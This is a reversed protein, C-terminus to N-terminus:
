PDEKLYYPSPLTRPASARVKCGKPLKKKLGDTMADTVLKCNWFEVWKLKKFRTLVTLNDLKPCEAFYLGELQPLNRLFSLDNNPITLSLTALKKHASIPYFSSIKKCGSLGLHELNPLWALPQIEEIEKCGGLNLRTLKPLAALTTIDKLSTCYCLSLSTLKQLKALPTIDKLESCEHLDLSTLNTFLGASAYTRLQANTITQIIVSRIQLRRVEKKYAEVNKENLGKLYFVRRECQPIKITGPTEGVGPLVGNEGAFVEMELESTITQAPFKPPADEALSKSTLLTILLFLALFIKRSM